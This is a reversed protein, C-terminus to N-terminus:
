FGGNAATRYEDAKEPRGWAEYLRVFGARIEEPVGGRGAQDAVIGLADDLLNEAEEFRGMRSRIEAQYALTQAVMVARRGQAATRIRVSLGMISDAEQLRGQGMLSLALGSLTGAHRSHDPGVTQLDIAEASRLIEEAERPRGHRVLFSGLVGLAESILPHLEGFTRKRLTVAQRLLSEAEELDGQAERIVALGTLGWVFNRHGYGSGDHLVTVAERALAEAEQLDGEQTRILDAVQLMDATLATIDPNELSRRRELVERFAREALEYRGQFRYISALAGLTNLTEPDGRGLFELELDLAQNVLDEADALKGLYISVRGLDELINAREAPGIAPQGEARDRARELVVVARDYQGDNKLAIGWQHLAQVLDPHTEGVEDMLLSVAESALQEGEGYQGLNQHARSMVGLFRARVLPEGLLSDARQEGRKLLDLVTVPGGPSEDPHSSDFLGLLFETVEESERLAAQARDRETGAIGAQWIAAGAGALISVTV